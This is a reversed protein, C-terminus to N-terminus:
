SHAEVGLFDIMISCYVRTLRVLEKLSIFECDSHASSQDPGHYVGPVGANLFWPLNGIINIRSTKLPQNTVALYAKQLSGAIGSRPSIRFGDACRTLKLSVAIDSYTNVFSIINNLEEQVDGIKLRYAYRRTGVIRCEVPIRNYFDGGECVGVFFNRKLKSIIEGAVFLPNTAGNGKLEHLIPGDRKLTIEFIAMGKGEVPLTDHACEGVVVADGLKGSKILLDLPENKGLPAEHLGHATIMISGKLKLRSNIVVRAAEVMAALSGKMDCAGRGYILGDKFTPGAHPKDIADTHGDFQLTKGPAFRYKSIINPSGPYKRIIKTEMGLNKLLKGFFVSFEKENGTPSPIRLFDLTRKKLGEADIRGWLGASIEKLPNSHM